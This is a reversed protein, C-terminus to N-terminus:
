FSILKIGSNNNDKLDNLGITLPIQIYNSKNM